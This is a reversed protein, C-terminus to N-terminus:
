IIINDKSVHNMMCMDYDHAHGLVLGAGMFECLAATVLALATTLAGYM